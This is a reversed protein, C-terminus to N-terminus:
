RSIDPIVKTVLMQLKRCKYWEGDDIPIISVEISTGSPLITSEKENQANKSINCGAKNYNPILIHSSGRVDVKEIKSKSIQGRQHKSHGTLKKEHPFLIRPSESLYTTNSLM